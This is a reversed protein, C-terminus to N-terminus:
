ILSVLPGECHQAKVGCLFPAWFGVNEAGGSANNLGQKEPPHCKGVEDLEDVNEGAM